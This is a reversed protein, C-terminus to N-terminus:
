VLLAGELALLKKKREIGGGFGVLGGDEGIVRHCPVIIPIPNRGVAGGVARMSDPNGIMAAVAKYSKTAGFPISRLATLVQLQFDTGLLHTKVTFRQLRGQFYKRLQEHIKAHEGNEPRVEYERFHRTFFAYMHEHYAPTEFAIYYVTDGVTAIHLEGVPSPLHSLFIITSHTKRKTGTM